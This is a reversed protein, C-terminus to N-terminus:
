PQGARDALIGNPRRKTRILNEAYIQMESAQGHLGGVSPQHM